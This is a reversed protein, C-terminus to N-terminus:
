SSLNIEIVATNQIAAQMMLFLRRSLGPGPRLPISLTYTFAVKGTKTKHQRKFDGQVSTPSPTTNIYLSTTVPASLSPHPQFKAPKNPAWPSRTSYRKESVSNSDGEHQSSHFLVFVLIDLCPEFWLLVDTLAMISPMLLIEWPGYDQRMQIANAYAKWAFVRLNTSQSRQGKRLEVKIKIFM